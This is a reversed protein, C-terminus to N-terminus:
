TSLAFIHDKLFGELDALATDPTIITYPNTKPSRKFKTM